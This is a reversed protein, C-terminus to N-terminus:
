GLLVPVWILLGLILCLLHGASWPHYRTAPSRLRTVSNVYNQVPMLCLFSPVFAALVFVAVSDVRALVNSLIVLVVWGTALADPPFTPAQAARAERDGHIRRLLSHCYFIGFIGRWFPRIDVREREKLYRWNKYIWYAQYLGGSLISLLILRWVPIYLFLPVRPIASAPAATTQAPPPEPPTLQFEKELPEWNAMGERWCYDTPALLGQAVQRRIEAEDFPGNQKGDKAVYYTSM